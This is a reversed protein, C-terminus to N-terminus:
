SEVPAFIPDIRSIVFYIYDIRYRRSSICFQHLRNTKLYLFSMILPNGQVLLRSNSNENSRDKFIMNILNLFFIFQLTKLASVQIYSKRLFQQFQTFKACFFCVYKSLHSLLNLFSFYFSANLILTM